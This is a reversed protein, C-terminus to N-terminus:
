PLEAGQPLRDERCRRSVNLLLGMGIMSILLSSGGYSVFPLTVGTAPISGTAVAINLIAQLGLLTTVGAAVLGSFRDPANAAVKMGRWVILAFMLLVGWTFIMGLEEGIVALISDTTAAPLYFYKEVSGCYGCGTLGGSGLAILSRAKQYGGALDVESGKFFSVLRDLQYPNKWVLFAAPFVCMAAAAGLHRLKAGAINFYVMISLATVAATGMDPEVAVLGVVLFMLLFPPAAQRWDSIGQPFHAFYRATVIVLALKALESPQFSLPTQPIHYWSHAGNRAPMAFVGLLLVVTAILLSWAKQELREMRVRMAALLGFMGVLVFVSEQVLKTLISGGHSAVSPISASYVMAVGLSVLALTPALLWLDTGSEEERELKAQSLRLARIAAM